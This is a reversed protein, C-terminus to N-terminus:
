VLYLISKVVSPLPEALRYYVQLSRQENEVVGASSLVGLHKSTSRFSLRIALAIDGVTAEDHNKLHKIIALRRQNAIAKLIKELEREKM